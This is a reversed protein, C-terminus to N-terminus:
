GINVLPKWGLLPFRSAILLAAGGVPLLAYLGPFPTQKSIAFAALVILAPGVAALWAPIQPRALALM